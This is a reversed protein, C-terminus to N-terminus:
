TSEQARLVKILHGLKELFARHLTPAGFRAVLLSDASVREPLEKLGLEALLERTHEAQLRHFTQAATTRCGIDAAIQEEWGRITRESFQMSGDRSGKRAPRVGEQGLRVAVSKRAETHNKGLAVLRDTTFVAVGKLADYTANARTGGGRSRRKPRLMPSVNGDDLAMLDTFLRALPANVAEKVILPYIDLRDLCAFFKLVSELAHTAGDRGGDEATPNNFRQGAEKLGHFLFNFAHAIHQIEQPSLDSQVADAPSKEGM